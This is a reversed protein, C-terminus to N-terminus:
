QKNLTLTGSGISGACSNSGTYTGTLSSATAQADGSVTASCSEFPSDFGGAPIAISFRISSGSLTGSISGRGNVGTATDTLTANGSISTDAQTLQWSMAGGGSSDTASGTWAGSVNVPTPQPSPDTPGDSKGDGGCAATTLTLAAM